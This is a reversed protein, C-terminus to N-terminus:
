IERIPFPLFCCFTRKTCIATSMFLAQNQQVENTKLIYKLNCIIIYHRDTWPFFHWTNLANEGDGELERFVLVTASLLYFFWLIKQSSILKNDKVAQQSVNLGQETVTKNFNNHSQQKREFWTQLHMTTLTLEACIAPYTFSGQSAFHSIYNEVSM